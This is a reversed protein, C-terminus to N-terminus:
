GIVVTMQIKGRFGQMNTHIWRDEMQIFGLRILHPSASKTPHSTIRKDAALIKGRVSTELATAYGIMSNIAM